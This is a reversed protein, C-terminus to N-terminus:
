SQIAIKFRVQEAGSEAMGWDFRPLLETVM